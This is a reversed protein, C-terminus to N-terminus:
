TEGRDVMLQLIQLTLKPNCCALFLPTENRSNKKNPNGGLSLILSIIEKKM